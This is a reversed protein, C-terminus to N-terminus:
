NRRQELQQIHREIDAVAEPDQSRRANVYERLFEIAQDSHGLREHTMGLNLYLEPSNNQLYQAAQEFAALAGRYDRRGFLANGRRFWTLGEENLQASTAPPQAIGDRRRQELARASALRREVDTRVAPEVNASALFREFFRMAETAEGMREYVRGLNLALEPSPQADYVQRWARAAASFDNHSYATNAESMLRTADASSLSASAGASPAASASATPAATAAASPGATPAVTPGARRGSCASGTALLGACVLALGARASSAGGRAGGRENM